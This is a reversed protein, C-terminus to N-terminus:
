VVVETVEEESAAFWCHDALAPVVFEVAARSPM